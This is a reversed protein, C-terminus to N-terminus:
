GTFKNSHSTSAYSCYAFHRRRCYDFFPWHSTFYSGPPFETCLRLCQSTILLFTCYVLIILEYHASTPGASPDPITKFISSNSPLRFWGLQNTVPYELIGTKTAEWQAFAANALTANRFLDDFSQTSNVAFDNFLLVHDTLNAGVSPNKVLTKIGLPTLVSPDGIGSLQLIAPTGITGASLVIEKKATVSSIASASPVTM